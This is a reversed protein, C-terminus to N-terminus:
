GRHETLYRQLKRRAHHLRSMVTGVSCQLAAAIAGCSMGEIEKLVIVARHIPPLKALAEGLAAALERTEAARDPGPGPAPLLSAPDTEEEGAALPDAGLRPRRRVSDVALNVAIRRLWGGFTGRGDFRDLRRFARVFVEQVADLADERHRLVQYATRYVGQHHRRFLEQFAMLDGGRCRGVLEEDTEERLTAPM